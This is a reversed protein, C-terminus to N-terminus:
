RWVQIRGRRKRDKKYPKLRREWEAQMDRYSTSHNVGAESMSSSSKGLTFDGHGSQRYWWAVMEVAVMWIDGPITSYGAKYSVKVNRWGVPFTESELQIYDWEDDYLVHDADDLLNAWASDVDTRYQVAALIDASTPTTATSIQVVPFYKLYLKDTGDGDHIESTVSQSAVKNGLYREVSESAKDIWGELTTDLTTDATAIKLFAKVEALTPIAYASVAM